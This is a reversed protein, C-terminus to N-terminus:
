SRRGQAKRSGFSARRCDRVLPCDGCRPPKRGGCPGEAVDMLAQVARYPTPLHDPGPDDYSSLELFRAGAAVAGSLDGPEAGYRAAVREIGKDVPRCVGGALLRCIEWATNREGDIEVTRLWVNPDTRGTVVAMAIRDVILRKERGLGLLGAREIREALPLELWDEAAVLDGLMNSWRKAVADARTRLLLGEALYRLDGPCDFARWPLRRAQWHQAFYALLGEALQRPLLPTASRM